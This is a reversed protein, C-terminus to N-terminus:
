SEQLSGALSQFFAKAEEGSCSEEPIRKLLAFLKFPSMDAIEKPDMEAIGAILVYLAQEAETGSLNELCRIVLEMGIQRVNMKGSAALNGVYKVEDSLHAADIIRMAAFVDSTKLERM